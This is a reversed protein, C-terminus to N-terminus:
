RKGDNRKWGREVGRGKEKSECKITVSGASAFLAAGALAALTSPSLLASLAMTQENRESEEGEVDELLSFHFIESEKKLFCDSGDAADREFFGKEKGWLGLIRAAICVGTAALAERAGSEGSGLLAAARAESGFVALVSGENSTPAGRAGIMTARAAGALALVAFIM